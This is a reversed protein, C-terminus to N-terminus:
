VQSTGFGPARLSRSPLVRGLTVRVEHVRDDSELRIYGDTVRQGDVDLRLVGQCVREANDVVIHYTASGYKYEIEFRDWTSPICPTIALTRGRRRLGIVYELGIRYMWGASGTYWTWGGRGEYGSGGYVDAAVVYPEVRYREVGDPTDGHRIPNLLSLLEGARDGAGLLSLALVSWLVGHTYQGGNERIGAPYSQIYGPDPHTHVFPPDLLKMMRMSPVILRAESAAMASAAREPDGLGAIVAWSQAIADIRCEQNNQSGLWSGDDFSARRYWEGDWAHEDVAKAIRKATSSCSAERESDGMLRAVHSFETLTKALFWALWVSEGRGEVGVRNMSDSWDGARMLPLGHEGATTGADLARKCHEYVSAREESAAPASFIEEEGPGLLRETLFPVQEDLVSRDGTVRVYEATVFPLWIMDDSCRTRLGHGTEAHWWHQVDGEPFQRSACHLIHERALAPRAHLSVLVDQLQERYGYAGSSQFFGTRGWVRSSLAQYLLWNNQMLDLARDPTKVRVVGLLDVWLKRARGLADNVAGERRYKAVLDEAQATGQAHGLLISVDLTEGPRIELQIQLAGVPDLGVGVNGSLRVRGLAEPEALSSSSGFVEERDGSVSSIPRSASLFARESPFLGIPNHAYLAEAVADYSTAIAVRSSERSTGLVWDVVAFISLRREKDGRNELRLRSIKVPEDPSVFLTLEHILGAREHEFQSYGQGHRVLYRAGRGLPAPTASWYSGDEDDRVYLREGPPDCVADNNWPTLRHRQSNKAWTFSSGVESVLTGFDPNSIVNCWPSPTVVGPELVMIYERGDAGFGGIGNDYTLKPRQFAPEPPHAVPPGPRPALRPPLPHPDLVRRLQRSLTGEKACLVVRACTCLLEREEEGLQDARRLFVGGRQDLRPHGGLERVTEALSPLGAETREDILVLDSAFGSSQWLEHALVLDRVLETFESDDIRCAVIPLDGSIGMARLAPLGRTGPRASRGAQRLMPHPFVLASLLRQYRHVEATSIGLHRLEVRVAAWGLEVARTVAHKASYADLLALADSRSKSLGTVLTLRASAGPALRVGRRLALATDLMLGTRRGLPADKALAAPAATTSGRGIFGQRSCDYDLPGFSGSEAVLMQMMWVEPESTVRARRKALLAFRDPLAETEVFMNSFARHAVDAGRPALVVETYSTVELELPSEGQNALTVQRVEVPHEPSLAVSTVTQVDGDRRHFEVRDISFAVNYFSPEARTPQYAASWLRNHTRNKVYLFIGGAELVPDERFRNIDLGRWRTVGTGAASVLAALEGHGLLQVRLPGPSRLGTREIADVRHEARPATAVISVPTRPPAAGPAREELLLEAAKARPNRCFRRQTPAGFLIHALAALTIAQHRAVFTKVVVGRRGPPVHDPTFDIADYYGYPGDLGEGSLARLNKGVLDPRVLGALVTAYPAVVLESGLGTRLGLGPVGFARQQYSMRRDLQNCASESIGWPVGRRAAHQRQRSIAVHYAEGLLTKPHSELWLLPVLYESLSGSRSLLARGSGNQALPRGLHYWHREPLDGKAVAFFSALRAESALLEHRGPERQGRPVDFGTALLQRGPDFLLTFSMGEALAAAREGATALGRCLEACAGAGEALMRGFAALEAACEARLEEPIDAAQLRAGLETLERSVEAGFASISAADARAELWAQLRSVDAALEPVSELRALPAVHAFWPALARLEESSDSGLLEARALWYSADGGGGLAEARGRAEAIEGQLQGLATALGGLGPGVEALEAARGALAELEAEVRDGETARAVSRRNPANSLAERALRLADSMATLTRPSVLPEATLERCGERVAWCSAALVGSDATSVRQPELPRLTPTEYGQLLHGAHKDLKELTTLTRELRSRVERSTIFGFDRAGLVGLLYLGIDTPTARHAVVGRPDEQYSAPPLHQDSDGVLEDFYRWTRQALTWLLRRDGDPLELALRADPLPESIWAAVLPAVAWALLLPAALPWADPRAWIVAVCGVASAASTLWSRRPISAAMPTREYARTPTWDLLRRRSVRVRYLARAAADISLCALDLLFILNLVVQGTSTSLDGGFAGLRPRTPRTVDRVVSLALRAALPLIFVAAFAAAAVGAALPRQCWGLVALLVLAPALASRRLEDAIRWLDLAGLESPAEGAAAPVRASLWPLLQWDGRMWRHQRAVQAAYTAPQEELVQVDTVLAARAFIGELAAHSLVSGEPIRGALAAQFADVDYIGNGAFWGEGYLDQFTDVLPEPYRDLGPPGSLITALRSRRASRPSSSLRPQLIAHGRAIRREDADLEARNLPHAAAGVLAAAAGPGLQTDADLAIVYRIGAFRERPAVVLSFTTSEDGRLLRNLEQLKGRKREWGIYSGEGPSEVRRRHLLWHRPASQGADLAEVGARLREVLAADGPAEAGPADSFDTVLAFSLNPDPNALSRVRAAELLRDVAQPGDLLAPVAVLTRHEDAIGAAFDLKPLRRPPFVAATLAAVLALAIESAPLLLTLLFAVLMPWSVAATRLALGFAWLSLATLLGVAALQFAAPSALVARRLSLPLSPEYGIRRELEGRGDGVLFYGVHASATGSERARTLELAVRAVDPEGKRSRKALDEVASRYTNLTAGDCRAYIGSPEAALLREVDCTRAFLGGWDIATIARMSDLANTLAVQDAAQRRHERRALEEPTSGLAACRAAVWERTAELPGDHERQRQMLRVVFAGSRQVRGLEALVARTAAPHAASAVLRDAWTDASAREQEREDSAALMGLWSLLGLRLVSVLASLEGITLRRVSQYSSLFSELADAEVRGDTHRLYDLSLAYLRPYGRMRGTALRPLHRLVGPGLREGLEQLQEEVLSAADLLREEVPSPEGRRKARRGLIAYAEIVRQRVSAIREGLPGRSSGPEPEGHAAAVEKAHADLHERTYLEGRLHSPEDWRAAADLGPCGGGPTSSQLAAEGM